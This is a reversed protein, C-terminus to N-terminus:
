KPFHKPTLAVPHRKSAKALQRSREEGGRVRARQCARERSGLGFGTNWTRGSHTTGVGEKGLQLKGWSGHWSDVDWRNKLTM